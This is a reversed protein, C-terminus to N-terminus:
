VGGAKKPPASGATMMVKIVDQPVKSQNLNVLGTATLDFNAKSGQIKAIILAKPVGGTVMQVVTANTLEEKTSAAPAATLMAKVIDQSVKNQQLSILGNASLDFENKTGQIKAVILDKALKGIVMQIVTANTLVEAPAGGGQAAGVRPLLSGILFLSAVVYTVGRRSVSHRM